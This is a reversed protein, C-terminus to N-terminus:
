FKILTKIKNNLIDQYVKIFDEPMASINGNANLYEILYANFTFMRHKEGIIEFLAKYNNKASENNLKELVVFKENIKYIIPFLNPHQQMTRFESLEKESYIRKSYKLIETKDGDYKEVDEM